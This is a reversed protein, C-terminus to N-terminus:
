RNMEVVFLCSYVCYHLSFELLNAPWVLLGQPFAPFPPACRANLFHAVVPPSLEDGFFSLSNIFAGDGFDIRWGEAGEEGGQRM